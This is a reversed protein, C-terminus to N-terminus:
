QENINKIADYVEQIDEKTHTSMLCVRLIAEGKKVTPYRIAPILINKELLKKSIEVAKKENGIPIKIIASECKIDKFEKKFVSDFYKINEQLKRSLSGDEMLELSKISAMCLHASIATSYIFGRAKNRLYDVVYKDACVFGGEVGIAKSLTGMYIDVEKNLNFHELTGKGRQGLIGIGHADDVMLKANYKKSLIVIKDLLAIDGSMSFVGETVILINKTQVNNLKEELDKMDNHKFILKSAKALRCGDIISAHNEEDSIITYTEDCISQLVALNAGYGTNFIIADEKNFFKFLSQELKEHPEYSGTTLRSGGSGVGYKEIGEIAAEKLEERNALGLYNNSSMLLIEKGEIIITKDQPSELYNMKRLLNNERIAELKLKLDDM